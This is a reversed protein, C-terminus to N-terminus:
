LAASIRPSIRARPLFRSLSTRPSSLWDRATGFCACAAVASPRTSGVLCRMVLKGQRLAHDVTILTGSKEGAEVVLLLRSLGSLVSNRLPFHFSKPASLYPFPTLVMGRGSDWIRTALTEHEPPYIRGLGSGLVAVTCGGEDVAVRHSEGDIGRALGSVVVVGGRALAGTFRRTQRVGYLTPRRSGVIGVTLWSSDSRQRRAPMKEEPASADRQCRKKDSGTVMTGRAFLVVPGEPMQALPLPYGEKSACLLTVGERRVLELEAEARRGLAASTLKKAVAPKVGLQTILKEQPQRLVEGASGFHKLLRRGVEFDYLTALHLRVLELVEAEPRPTGQEPTSM